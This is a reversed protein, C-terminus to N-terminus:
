RGSSSRSSSPRAGKSRSSRVSPRAATRSSPPQVQGRYGLQDLGHQRTHGVGLAGRPPQPGLAVAIREDQAFEQLQEVCPGAAQGGIGLAVRQRGARQRGADEIGVRLAPLQGQGLADDVEHLM